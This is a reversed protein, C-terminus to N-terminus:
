PIKDSTTSAFICKTRWLPPPTRGGHVGELVAEAGTKYKSAKNINKVFLEDAIHHIADTMISVNKDVRTQDVYGNLLNTYAEDLMHFVEDAILNEVYTSAKSTNWSMYQKSTHKEININNLLESTLTLSLLFYDSLPTKIVNFETIYKFLYVNTLM